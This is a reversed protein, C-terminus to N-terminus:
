AASRPPITCKMLADAAAISAGTIELDAALQSLAYIGGYCATASFSDGAALAAKHEDLLMALRRQIAMSAMVTAPQNMARPPAPPAPPRATRPKPNVGRPVCKCKEGQSCWGTLNCRKCGYNEPM